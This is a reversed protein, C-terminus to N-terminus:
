LVAWCSQLITPKPQRPRGAGAFRGVLRGLAESLHERIESADTATAGPCLLELAAPAAQGILILRAPNRLRRLEPSELFEKLGHNLLASSRVMLLSVPSNSNVARNVEELLRQEFAEHSAPSSLLDPPLSFRQVLLSRDSLAILDGARARAVGRVQVENVRIAVQGFVRVEVAEDEDASLRVQWGERGEFVVPHGQILRVPRTSNAQVELLALKSTVLPVSRARSRRIQM